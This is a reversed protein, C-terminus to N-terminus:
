LSRTCIVCVLWSTMDRDWELEGKGEKFTDKWYFHPLSFMWPSYFLDAQVRVPAFISLLVSFHVSKHSWEFVAEAWRQSNLQELLSQTVRRSIAATSFKACAVLFGKSQTTFIRFVYGAQWSVRAVGLTNRKIAIERGKTERERDIM